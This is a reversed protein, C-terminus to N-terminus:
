LATLAIPQSKQNGGLKALVLTESKELVSIIKLVHKM